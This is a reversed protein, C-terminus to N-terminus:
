CSERLHEVVSIVQTCLSKIHVMPVGVCIFLRDVAHPQDHATEFVVVTFEVVLDLLEVRDLESSDPEADLIEAAFLHGHGRSFKELM